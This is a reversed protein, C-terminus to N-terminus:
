ASPKIKLWPPSYYGLLGLLVALGSLLPGYRDSVLPSGAGMRMIIVLLTITPLLAGFASFGLRLGYQKTLMSKRLALGGWGILNIGATIGIWMGIMSLAFVAQGVVSTLFGLLVALAAQLVLILLKGLLAALYRLANM